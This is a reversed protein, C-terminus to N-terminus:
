YYKKLKIKQGKPLFLFSPPNKVNQYTHTHRPLTHPNKTKFHFRNSISVLFFPVGFVRRCPVCAPAVRTLLQIEPVHPCSLARLSDLLFAVLNKQTFYRHTSPRPLSSFFVDSLNEPAFIMGLGRRHHLLRQGM